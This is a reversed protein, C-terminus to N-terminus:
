ATRGPLAVTPWASREPSRRLNMSAALLDDDGRDLLEGEDEVLDAALVRRRKAMMMSSAWELWPPLVEAAIDRREGPLLDLPPSSVVSSWILRIM